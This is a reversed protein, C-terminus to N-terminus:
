EAFFLCMVRFQDFTTASLGNRKILLTSFNRSSLIFLHISKLIFWGTVGDAFGAHGVTFCLAKPVRARELNSCINFSYLVRKTSVKKIETSQLM